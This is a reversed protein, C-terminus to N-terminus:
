DFGEFTTLVTPLSPYEPISRQLPFTAQLLWHVYYFYAANSICYISYMSLASPRGFAIRSVRAGSTDGSGREPVRTSQAIPSLFQEDSSRVFWNMNLKKELIYSGRLRSTLLLM